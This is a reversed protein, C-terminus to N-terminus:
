QRGAHHRLGKADSRDANALVKGFQMGLTEDSKIVLRTFDTARFAEPAQGRFPVAPERIGVSIERHVQDAADARDETLRPQITQDLRPLLHRHSSIAARKLKAAAELITDAGDCAEPRLLAVHGFELCLRIAAKEQDFIM